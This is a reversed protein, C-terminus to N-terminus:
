RSSDGYDGTADDGVFSSPAWPGTMVVRLDSADLWPLLRDRLERLRGREVLLALSLADVNADATAKLEARHERVVEGLADLLAATVARAREETARRRDMAAKRALLYARGGSTEGAPAASVRATAPAREGQRPL